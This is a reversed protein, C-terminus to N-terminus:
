TQPPNSVANRDEIYEIMQQAFTPSNIANTLKSAEDGFAKAVHQASEEFKNSNYATSMLIIMLMAGVMIVNGYKEWFASKEGRKEIMRRVFVRNWRSAERGTQGIGLPEKYEEEVTEFMLSGDKNTKQRQITLEEGTEDNIITEEIMLPKEYRKFWCENKLRALVRYDDENYKVISLCKGYKSDYVYDDHSVGSVSQKVKEILVYVGIVEDNEIIGKKEGQFVLDKGVKEYLLIRITRGDKLKRKRFYFYDVGFYALFLVLLGIAINFLDM